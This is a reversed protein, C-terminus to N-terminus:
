YYQVYWIEPICNPNCSHNIFRGLNGKRTADVYKSNGISIIYYHRDDDADNMRDCFEDHEIVEGVYEIVFDGKHIFQDALIGFGKEKTSFVKLKCYEARQFRQNMCNEKCPCNEPSCEEM